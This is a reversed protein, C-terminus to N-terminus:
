EHEEVDDHRILSLHHLDARARKKIWAANRRKFMMKPLVQNLCVDVKMCTGGACCSQKICVEGNGCDNTTNCTPECDNPQACVDRGEVTNFCVCGSEGSCLPITSDGCNWVKSCSLAPRTVNVFPALTTTSVFSVTSTVTPTPATTTAATAGFCSCASSYRAADPCASAYEPITKTSISTEAAQRQYLTKTTNTTITEISSETVFVTSASPTETVALFSSCEAMRLEMTATGYRTARVARLCNDANCGTARAKVAPVEPAEPAAPIEMASDTDVVAASAAAALYAVFSFKM